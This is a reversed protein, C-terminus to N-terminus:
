EAATQIAEIGDDADVGAAEAAQEMAWGAEDADWEGGDPHHGEAMAAMDIRAATAADDTRDGIAAVIRAAAARTTAPIQM